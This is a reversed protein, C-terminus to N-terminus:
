DLQNTLCDRKVMRVFGGACGCVWGGSAARERARRREEEDKPQSVTLREERGLNDSQEVGPFPQLSERQWNVSTECKQAGAM